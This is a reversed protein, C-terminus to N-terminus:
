GGGVFQVIEVQDGANLPTSAFAARPVIQRNHEVAVRDPDMGLTELLVQVSCEGSIDLQKGNATIQM